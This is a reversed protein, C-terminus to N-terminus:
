LVRTVILISDSVPLCSLVQDPIPRNVLSRPILVNFFVNIEIRFPPPYRMNLETQYLLVEQHIPVLLM